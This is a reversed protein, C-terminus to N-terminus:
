SGKRRKRAKKKPRKKKKKKGSISYANTNRQDYTHVNGKVTTM